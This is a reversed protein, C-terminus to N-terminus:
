RALDHLMLAPSREASMRCVMGVTIVRTGSSPTQTDHSAQPKFRATDVMPHIVQVREGLATALAAVSSHTAVYKSPAVMVTVANQNDLAGAAHAASGDAQSGDSGRWQQESLLDRPPHLNPLELLRAGVGSLRAVHFVVATRTDRSNAQSVLALPKLASRLPRLALRVPQPLAAWGSQVSSVQALIPAVLDFFRHMLPAPAASLGDFLRLEEAPPAVSTRARAADGGM